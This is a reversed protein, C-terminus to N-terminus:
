SSLPPFDGNDKLHYPHANRMQNLTIGVNHPPSVPTTHTSPHSGPTSNSRNGFALDQSTVELPWPGLTGFEFQKDPHQVFGNSHIIERPAEFSPPIPINLSSPIGLDKAGPVHIPEQRLEELATFEVSMDARVYQHSRKHNNPLFHIKGRRARGTPSRDRCLEPNPFYTGTGRARNSDDILNYPRMILYNPPPAYGIGNTGAYGYANNISHSNSSRRNQYRTPPSPVQSSVSGFEYYQSIPHDQHFGYAYLLNNFHTTYDGTLNSKNRGITDGDDDDVEEFSQHFGGHHSLNTGYMIGDIMGSESENFLYPADHIEKSLLNYAGTISQSSPECSDSGNTMGTSNTTVFNTTKSALWGGSISKRENKEVMYNSGNQKLSGYNSSYSINISHFQNSLDGFSNNNYLPSCDNNTREAKFGWLFGSVSKRVRTCHRKLTNKFFQNVEDM